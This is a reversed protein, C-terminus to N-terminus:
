SSPSLDTPRRNRASAVPDVASRGALAHARLAARSLLGFFRADRRHAARTVVLGGLCIILFGFWAVHGWQGPSIWGLGDTLMVVLALNTPNFLHKGEWRILFKSAIAMFSALAAVALDNTRLLLCLSLSSVLPSRPDFAPLTFLKTGAFQTLLATGLTLVIQLPPIEFDLWFLGYILLTGLSAIQYLRPDFSSFRAKVRESLRDPNM